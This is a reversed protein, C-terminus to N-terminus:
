RRFIRVGDKTGMYVECNISTFLGVELVGPINKIRSEAMQPNVITGFECDVILNGNDTIFKGEGRLSCRAGLKQLEKLTTEPLFPSIEVPLPYRGIGSPNYKSSDAIICVARSSRAIIKERLLAGGGGKILFIRDDFEDTGDVDLDLKGDVEELIEIGIGAALKATRTSSAVGRVRLGEQMKEGLLRLFVEFTTGTGLGLTMGDRVLKLAERSAIEKEAAANGM